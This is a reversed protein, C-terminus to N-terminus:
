DERTTPYEMRTGRARSAELLQPDLLIAKHDALAGTTWLVSHEGHLETALAWRALGSYMRDELLWAAFEGSRDFGFGCWGHSVIDHVARLRDYAGGVSTDLLPHRRDHDRANPCVELMRKRRVADRLDAASTYPEHCNSYMVRVSPQAGDRTILAFWQSAQASLEAYAARVIADSPMRPAELFADAVRRGQDADIGRATITVLAAATRPDPGLEGDLATSAAPDHDLTRGRRRNWASDTRTCTLAGSPCTEMIRAVEDASAGEPNALPRADERDFV